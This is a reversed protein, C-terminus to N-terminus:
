ILLYWRNRCPKKMLRYFFDNSPVRYPKTLRGVPLLKLEILIVDTCRPKEFFSCAVAVIAGVEAGGDGLSLRRVRATALSFFRFGSSGRARLAAGDCRLFANTPWPSGQGRATTCARHVGRVRLEPPQRM